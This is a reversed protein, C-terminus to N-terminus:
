TESRAKESFQNIQDLREEVTAGHLAVTSIVVVTLFVLPGFICRQIAKVQLDTRRDSSNRSFDKAISSRSLAVTWLTARRKTKSFRIPSPSAKSSWSFRKRARTPSAQCGAWRPTTFLM